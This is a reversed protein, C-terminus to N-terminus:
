PQSLFRVQAQTGIKNVLAQALGWRPRYCCLSKSILQGHLPPRFAYSIADCVRGRVSIMLLRVQSSRQVIWYLTTILAVFIIIHRIQPM